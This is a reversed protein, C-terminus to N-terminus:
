LGIATHLSVVVVLCILQALLSGTLYLHMILIDVKGKLRNALLFNFGLVALAVLAPMYLVFWETKEVFGQLFNFRFEILLEQSRIHLLSLILIVLAVLANSILLGISLRDKIVISNNAM